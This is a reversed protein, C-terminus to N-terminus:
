KPQREDEEEYLHSTKPDMDHPNDGCGGINADPIGMEYKLYHKVTSIYDAAKTIKSQVWAELQTNDGIMSMLEHSYEAIQQLQRNAMSGEEDPYDFYAGNHNNIEDNQPPKQAKVLAYEEQIIKILDSKKIKM